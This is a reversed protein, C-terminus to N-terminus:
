KLIVSIKKSDMRNDWIYVIYIVAGEVFYIIRHHPYELLSRYQKERGALAGEIKGLLPTSSLTEIAELIGTRFKDAAKSSMNNLYWIYIARFVALAEEDWEIQYKVM